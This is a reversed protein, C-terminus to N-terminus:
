GVRTLEPESVQVSVVRADGPSISRAPAGQNDIV